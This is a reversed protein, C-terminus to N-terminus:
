SGEHIREWLWDALGDTDDLALVATDTDVPGDALVLAYPGDIPKLGKGLAQRVVGIKPWPGFQCGETLIVDVGQIRAVAEAETLPRNELFAAHTASVIATVDAGAQTMRWTDKGPRDMDFDHGDHKLVAVTLGRDKLAPILKELLTTKGTGSWAVFSYVPISM